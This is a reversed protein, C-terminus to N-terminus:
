PNALGLTQWLNNLHNLKQERTSKGEWGLSALWEHALLTGNQRVIEQQSQLCDYAKFSSNIWLAHVAERHLNNRAMWRAKELMYSGLKSQKQEHYIGGWREIIDSLNLAGEPTMHLSGELKCLQEKLQPLVFGLQALHRTSSPSIGRQILPLLALQFTLRGAYHCLSLSDNNTIAAELKELGPPIRDAILKVRRSLWRNDLFQAQVERQLDTLFNEPDYLIHGTNMDNARITHSLISELSSYLALSEPTGDIYVGERWGDIRALHQTEVELIFRLDIDSFPTAEDRAVSGVLLVGKIDSRQQLQEEVFGRAIKLFNNM